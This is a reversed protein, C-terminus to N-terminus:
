IRSISENKYDGVYVTNPHVQLHIHNLHYLAVQLNPREADYIWNTNIDDLAEKPNSYIRSRIDLGRVPVTGHVGTDGRRYGSTAVIEYREELWILLEVMKFHYPASLLENFVERDKFKLTIM